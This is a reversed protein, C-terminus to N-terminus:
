PSLSCGFCTVANKARALMLDNRLGCFIFQIYTYVKKTFYFIYDHRAPGASCASAVAWARREQSKCANPRKQSWM